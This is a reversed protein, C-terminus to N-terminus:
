HIKSGCNYFAKGGDYVALTGQAIGLTEGFGPVLDAAARGVPGSRSLWYMLSPSGIKYAGKTARLASSPGPPGYQMGGAAGFFSQLGRGGGIAGCGAVEAVGSIGGWVAKLVLSISIVANPDPQESNSSLSQIEKFASPGADCAGFECGADPLGLAGAIGPNIKKWNVDSPLGLTEGFSGDANAWDPNGTGQPRPKLSGHFSPGGGFLSAIAQGISALLNALPNSPDGGCSDGCYSGNTALGTPDTFSLPNNGVYSYRNFSQPNLFEYSGDYPDPSQWRGQPPNYDRFQAHMSSSGDWMGGFDDFTGSRHGTVNVFDDGFPLGSQVGYVAGTNDTTLRKSSVWNFHPFFAGTTGFNLQYNEIPETGWYTAGFSQTGSTGAWDSAIQGSLNLAYQSTATVSGSIYDDRIMQNLANYAYNNTVGGSVTQIVNGEADYRYGNISDSLLNGAADYTYGATSIQNNVSNVAFGAGNPNEQWRNGYRDYVWTLNLAVGSTTTQSTLRNFEDYGYSECRNLSTDCGSLSREGKWNTLFGYLQTGNSCYAVSSGRCVWGGNRRGMFDYTQISTLGNGLQYSTPGFPGYVISSVLTGPHTADNLSSTISTVENAPTYPTSNYSTTVGAGDSATLLNGLWDYSYNLWKDQSSQGCLSPLCQLNATVRGVPDYVFAQSNVSSTAATLRGKAAGTSTGSNGWITAQDYAFNRTPTGDSYSISLVRGVADYQTTTTTLVSASQQNATPKNRTVVLGTSNYAYSYTTQGHEPEQALIERGLWDTQFVRTQAGQTVTTKHNVLDYSYTTLYGTGAINLGCNVPSDGQLSNSSIECVATIRGLGDIQTIRSVGNEDTVQTARGIYSYQVASGDSHTITKMRRLADYSYTDGAGSCVKPTGWGNGQYSYSQFNVNGNADYCTDQQYWPNSSQGNNVAVRSPRGYADFLTETDAFTSANQYRWISTQNLSPYGPATKGIISGASDYNDIEGVRGFGDYNTYQTQTGNPDSTSILLGTSFDYSASTGLSVGSSPTPPTTSTVFTDTSDHGYTTQGNPDTQTLLTGADDYTAETSFTAGSSDIQQSVTTLNGRNGTVSNHQSLSTPALAAHGIGTAEDYGYNTQAIPNRSGDKVLIQSLLKANNVIYNYSYDTERIPTAPPQSSAPYYDSEKVTSIKGANLDMTFLTQKSVGGGPADWLTVTESTKSIYDSGTCVTTNPCAKSYDYAPVSTRLLSGGSTSSGSWEDTQTNWSGNNLTLTYVVDNNDPKTVVVKEKCGTGGSSCQTIVSPAFKTTGLSDSRSTPWRNVNQYSDFYNSYGYSIVGGQPLTVSTLEGYNGSSTGSDYDFSYTSGDPLQISKIATFSGPLDQVATENFATNFNVTETTVTYRARGGGYTLVDYYIQNGSTSVLVPTRGLTDVLNGNADKTWANGNPDQVSGYIQIGNPDFVANSLASNGLNTYKLQYGSADIASTFGTPCNSMCTPLTRDVTPGVFRHQTGGPDTWIFVYTQVCPDTRQSGCTGSQTYKLNSMSGGENGAVFRWGGMSNPVNTPQWQYNGNYVIKWIRSDYVLRENLRLSGRQPHQALPIELHINGNSVNIFGLQDPWQSTFTPNGIAYLYDQAYLHMGWTLCFVVCLWSIGLKKTM